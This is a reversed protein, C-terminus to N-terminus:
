IYQEGYFDPYYKGQANQATFVANGSLTYSSGSPCVTNILDKWTECYYDKDVTYPITISGANYLEINAITGNERKWEVTYM